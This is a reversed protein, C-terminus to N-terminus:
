SFVQCHANHYLFSFLPAKQGRKETKRYEASICLCVLGSVCVRERYPKSRPILLGRRHLLLLLSGFFVVGMEGEFFGLGVGSLDGEKMRSVGMGSTERTFHVGGGIEIM